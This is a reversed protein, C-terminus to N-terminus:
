HLNLADNLYVCSLITFIYEQLIAVFIEFGILMVIFPMPLFKGFLPLVVMFGALVKLLVHGAIMNAALRLSLSVPRALYAFLEIVILLPALWLPVGSPLFLSLFHMGHHIFGICTVLIFVVAALAFTISIHSTSTFSYPLMGCLNCSLIFLFISFIIPMFKEAKKGANNKLTDSIAFYIMEVFVQSRSPIVSLSRAGYALLACTLLVSAIMAFSSNTFSIDFGFISLEYIKHLEFQQLPNSM